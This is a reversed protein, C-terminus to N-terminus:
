LIRTRFFRFLHPSGLLPCFRRGFVKLGELFRNTEGRCLSWSVTCFGFFWLFSGWFPVLFDFFAVRTEFPRMFFLKRWVTFFSRCSVRILSQSLCIYRKRSTISFGEFLSLPCLIWRKGIFCFVVFGLNLTTSSGVLHSLYTVLHSWM